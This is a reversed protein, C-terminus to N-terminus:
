PWACFNPDQGCKWIVELSRQSEKLGKFSTGFRKRQGVVAVDPARLAYLATVSLIIHSHWTGPVSGRLLPDIQNREKKRKSGAIGVGCVLKPGKSDRLLWSNGEGLERCEIEATVKQRM